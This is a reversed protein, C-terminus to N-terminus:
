GGISFGLLDVQSLELSRVFASAHDAMADIREPTEGSSGAVGANDFLIV